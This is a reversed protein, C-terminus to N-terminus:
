PQKKGERHGSMRKAVRHGTSVYAKRSTWPLSMRKTVRHGTSVYAKSRSTRYQCVSQEAFDPVSM